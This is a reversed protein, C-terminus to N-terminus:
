PMPGSPAAAAMAAGVGPPAALSPPDGGPTSIPEATDDPASPAAPRSKHRLRHARPRPREPEAAPPREEPLAMPTPAPQTEDPAAAAPAVPPPPVAEVPSPVAPPTAAPPPAVPKLADITAAASAAPAAARPDDSGGLSVFAIAGALATVAVGGALAWRRPLWTLPADPDIRDLARIVDRASAFRAEPDRAMLRRVLRELDRPVRIGPRRRAMPPPDSSANHHLVEALNGDFPTKGTLMEYMTVGLGFLDARHDITGATTQEPAAYAPTGVISGITTLRASADPDSSIALGFDAIRPTEGGGSQVVLVNDPKFDRHVVGEEHAHTLGLCLQRALAVVRAPALPAEHDILTALTPGEVLEMALFMLGSETKGFDLVPVVNPHQLRSAMEAEQAFRVRMAVTTALDGILIKVAYRRRALRSHHARYVRGMAGEGLLSDVVYHEAVTEGVIPDDDVRRLESGDTPCRVFEARYIARCSFCARCPSSGVALM